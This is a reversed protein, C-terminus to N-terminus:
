QKQSLMFISYWPPSCMPPHASKTWPLCSTCALFLKAELSRNKEKLTGDGLINMLKWHCWLSPVLDECRWWKLDLHYLRTIFNCCWINRWIKSHVEIAYFNVTAVIGSINFHEIYIFFATYSHCYLRQPIIHTMPVRIEGTSQLVGWRPINRTECSFM